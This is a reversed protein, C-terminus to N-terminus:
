FVYSINYDGCILFLCWVCFLFFCRGYVLLDIFYLVLYWAVNNFWLFFDSNGCGLFYILCCLNFCVCRFTGFWFLLCFTGLLCLGVIVLCGSCGMLVFFLCVLLYWLYVYVSLCGCCYVFWWRVSDLCCSTLSWCGRELYTLCCYWIDFYFLLALVLLM